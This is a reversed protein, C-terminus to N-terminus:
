GHLMQKRAAKAIEELSPSKQLDSNTATNKATSAPAGIPQKSSTVAIVQTAPKTGKASKAASISVVQASDASQQREASATAEARENREAQLEAQREPKIDARRATRSLKSNAQSLRKKAGSVVPTTATILGVASTNHSHEIEPMVARKLKEYYAVEALSLGKYKISRPSLDARVPQGNSSQAHVYICDASRTDFSVKITYNSKRAKVFWGGAVAEPCTYYCDRFLIGEATVKANDRPLLAHRVTSEKYKSLAGMRKVVGENWLSIPDTLVGATIQTLSLPYDRIAKRNQAIIASLIIFGFEKLNLCADKEYHKGRRKTANSPPDYAPTVDHIAGHTLKFGCEVLSKWDPRKGPVNTVTLGLEDSIQSSSASIMEGRDALFEKPMIGHAPWDEPDYPVGYHACLEAKDAAISLIAETACIWSANELGIYFGVILRSHRDVILYYTPKGIIKTVDASSVLYVDCITADIEYIHGVGLCDRAITGVKARHDREFDKEGERSRLRAELGFNSNLYHRFQRKSPYSGLPNICAKGNGDIFSYKTALMYNYADVATTRKDKLYRKTIVERFNAIDIETLQYTECSGNPARGRGATVHAVCRGSRHYNALLAQPTQGGQWYRRLDKHLTRESCGLEAARNEILAARGKPSFVLPKNHDAVIPAIRSMATDRKASAAKSPEARVEGEIDIARQKAISELPLEFPWAFKEYVDIVHALGAEPNAHLLRLQRGELKFIENQYLM